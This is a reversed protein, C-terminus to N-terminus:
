KRIMKLTDRIAECRLRITEWNERANKSGNPMTILIDASRMLLEVVSGIPWDFFHESFLYYFFVSLNIRGFRDIGADIVREGLSRSFTCPKIWCPM